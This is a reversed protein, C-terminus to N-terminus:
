VFRDLYQSKDSFAVMVVGRWRTDTEELTRRCWVGYRSALDAHWRGDAALAEFRTLAATWDHRRLAALAEQFAVAASREDASVEGPARLEHVRLADVVIEREGDCFVFTGLEAAHFRRRDIRAALAHSILTTTGLAKNLSELREAVHIPAGEM